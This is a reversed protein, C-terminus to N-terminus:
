KRRYAELLTLLLGLLLLSISIFFPLITGAELMASLLGNEGCGYWPNSVAGYFCILSYSLGVMSLMIGFLLRKM